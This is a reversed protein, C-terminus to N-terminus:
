KKKWENLWEVLITSLKEYEKLENLTEIVQRTGMEQEVKDACEIQLSRKLSYELWELKNFYGADLVARWDVQVMGYSNQHGKLFALFKDKDVSGLENISWYIATEILDHKPNIEGASEWDIIIPEGNKWMVNKPELDRHSLVKESELMKKSRNSKANWLSLKEVSDSLDNIWVAKEEKGKNLYFAWVIERAEKSSAHSMDFQSYDTQHINALISGIKKCDAETIDTAVKCDGVIWDFIMYFQNDISQLFDGKFKKAPQAPIRNSLFDVIRESQIYNHLATPREMISPNLAKVAYNGNTTEIAYMRHLHGGSIAVPTKTLDGLELKKCLEELQVNYSNNM